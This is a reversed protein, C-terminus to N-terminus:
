ILFLSLLFIICIGTVGAVASGLTQLRYAESVDMGSFQSVVWFFSDNAHSVTMAWAGIALTVLLPGLESALRINPLLPVMNSATTIISVTSSGQDTKLAAAILFPLM